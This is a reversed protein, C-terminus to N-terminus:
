DVHWSKKLSNLDCKFFFSLPFLTKLYSISTCAADMSFITETIILVIRKAFFSVTMRTLLEWMLCLSLLATLIILFTFTKATCVKLIYTILFVKKILHHWTLIKYFTIKLLSDFYVKAPLYLLWFFLLHGRHKKSFSHGFTKPVNNM